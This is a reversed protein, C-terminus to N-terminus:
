TIKWTPLWKATCAQCDCEFGSVNEWNTEKKDLFRCVACHTHKVGLFDGHFARLVLSSHGTIQLFARSRHSTCLGPHKVEFSGWYFLGVLDFGLTWRYCHGRHQKREIVVGFCHVVLFVAGAPLMIPSQIVPKLVAAIKWQVVTLNIIVMPTFLIFVHLFFRCRSSCM